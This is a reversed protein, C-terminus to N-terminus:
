PGPAHTSPSVGSDPTSAADAAPRRRRRNVPADFGLATLDAPAWGAATAAAYADAFRQAGQEAREQAAAVLHAAQAEAEAVLRRGLVTATHVDEALRGRDASVVGLEGVVAARSNILDRAAREAARTVRTDM